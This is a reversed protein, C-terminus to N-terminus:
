QARSAKSIKNQEDLKSRNQAHWTRDDGICNSGHKETIQGENKINSNNALSGGPVTYSSARTRSHTGPSEAEGVQENIQTAELASRFELFRPGSNYNMNDDTSPSTKATVSSKRSSM